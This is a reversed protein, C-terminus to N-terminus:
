SSTEGSLTVNAAAYCEDARRYVALLRKLLFEFHHEKGAVVAQELSHPESDLYKLHGRFLYFVVEGLNEPLRNPIRLDDVTKRMSVTDEGSYLVRTQDGFYALMLHEFPYQRGVELLESPHLLVIEGNDGVTPYDGNQTYRCYETDNLREFIRQLPFPTQKRVM